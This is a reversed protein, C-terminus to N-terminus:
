EAWYKDLDEHNFDTTITTGNSGTLLEGTRTGAYLCVRVRKLLVAKEQFRKFETDSHNWSRIEIKGTRDTLMLVLLMKTEGKVNKEETHICGLIGSINVIQLTPTDHFQICTLTPESLLSKWWKMLMGDATPMEIHMTSEKSMTLNKKGNHMTLALRTFKVVCGVSDRNVVHANQNWVTIGTTGHQDMVEIYRREPPSTSAPYVVVIVAEFSFRLGPAMPTTTLDCSVKAPQLCAMFRARNGTLAPASGGATLDQTPVTANQPAPLASNVAVAPESLDNSLVESPIVANITAPKRMESPPHPHLLDVPHVINNPQLSTSQAIVHDADTPQATNTDDTMSIKARKRATIDRNTASM